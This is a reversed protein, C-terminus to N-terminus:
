RQNILEQTMGVINSDSPLFIQEMPLNFLKSIVFMEDVNFKTKGSEKNQYTTVDVELLEAMKRQTIRNEKRLLMLKWQM